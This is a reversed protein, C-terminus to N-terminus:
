FKRSFSVCLSLCLSLSLSLSLLRPKVRFLVSRNMDSCARLDLIFLRSERILKGNNELAAGNRASRLRSDVLRSGRKM